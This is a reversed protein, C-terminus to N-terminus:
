AGKKREWAGKTRGKELVKGNWEKRLCRSEKRLCRKTSRWANKQKKIVISGLTSHYLLRHAKFVLGGRFREVNRSLLQEQISFRGGPMGKELVQLM